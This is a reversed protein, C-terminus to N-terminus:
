DWLYRPMERLIEQARERTAQEIRERANEQDELKMSHSTRLVIEKALERARNEILEELSQTQPVFGYVLKLSMAAGAERLTRLTIGGSAEAAELDHVTQPKVGLRGGLQRLSMGLATRTAHIWGKTPIEINALSRYENLKRDMQQLLLKKRASKM